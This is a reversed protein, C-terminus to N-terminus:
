KCAPTPAVLEHRNILDAAKRNAEQMWGDKSAPPRDDTWNGELMGDRLVTLCAKAKILHSLGSDPDIDEGEWWQYLHRLAADFYVSARVGAKRWNYGGYKIEGELLALGEEIQVRPPVAHMPAKRVGISDKPNTLKSSM